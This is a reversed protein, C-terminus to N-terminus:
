FFFFFFSFEGVSLGSDTQKISILIFDNELIDSFLVKYISFLVSYVPEM